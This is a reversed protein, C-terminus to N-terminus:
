PPSTPLNRKSPASEQRQASSKQLLIKIRPTCRRGQCGGSGTGAADHVKDVQHHNKLTPLVKALPIGKCICVVRQLQKLMKAHDQPHVPPRSSHQPQPPSTM